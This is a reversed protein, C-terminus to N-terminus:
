GALLLEDNAVRFRSVLTEITLAKKEEGSLDLLVSGQHMMVLRSGYEIAHHMNHTIMLTTMKAHEIARLTAAMVAEATKPDLAACHEDLILLSPDSAIAMILAVAQRQGGSLLEVPSSLRDELGLGLPALLTRCRDYLEPRLPSRLRRREGRRVALALNEAISLGAATSASVDQTVKGILGARLHAPVLTVDSHGIQITGSDPLVDGSLVKMLTSKGAGNSGIIMVFEGTGVTLGIGDLAIKESQTGPNFTKRVAQLRLM